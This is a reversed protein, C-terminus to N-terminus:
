RVIGKWAAAMPLPESEKLYIWLNGRKRDFRAIVRAPNGEVMVWPPVDRSRVVSGCAVVAGEGIHCNYLTVDSCIWAYDDVQLPRLVQEDFDALDHSVTYTRIHLGWRSLPSITVPGRCDIAIDRAKFYEPPHGITGEAWVGPDLLNVM